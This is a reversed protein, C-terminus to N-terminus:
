GGMSGDDKSRPTSWKKVSIEFYVFTAWWCGLHEWDISSACWYMPIVTYMECCVKLSERSSMTFKPAFAFNWWLRQCWLVFWLCQRWGVCQTDSLDHSKHSKAPASRASSILVVFLVIKLFTLGGVFTVPQIKTKLIVTQPGDFQMLTNEQDLHISHYGM